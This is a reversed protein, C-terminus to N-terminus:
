GTAGNAYRPVMEYNEGARWHHDAMGAQFRQLYGANAEETAGSLFGVKRLANARLVNRKPQALAGEAAFAMGIALIRRRSIM